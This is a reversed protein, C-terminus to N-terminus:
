FLGLWFLGPFHMCSLKYWFADQKRFGKLFYVLGIVIVATNIAIEIFYPVFAAVGGEDQADLLCYIATFIGFLCMFIGLCKVIIRYKKENM